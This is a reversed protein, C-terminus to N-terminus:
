RHLVHAVDHFGRHRIKGSLGGVTARHALRDLCAERILLKKQACVFVVCVQLFSEIRKAALPMRSLTRHEFASSSRERSSAVVHSTANRYVLGDNM